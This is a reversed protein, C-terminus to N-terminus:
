RTRFTSTAVTHTRGRKDQWTLVARIELPDASTDAYTVTITEASLRYGGVVDQYTNGASGDAVGNPFQATISSFGTARIREMLSRLDTVAIAEERSTDILYLISVVVGLLAALAVTFILTAILIEVLTTGKNRM